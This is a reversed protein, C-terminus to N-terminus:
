VTMPLIIGHEVVRSDSQVISSSGVRRGSEGGFRARAAAHLTASRQCPPGYPSAGLASYDTAVAASRKGAESRGQRYMRYRCEGAHPEGRHCNARSERELSCMV